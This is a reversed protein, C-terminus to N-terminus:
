LLKRRALELKWLGDEYESALKSKRFKKRIWKKIKRIANKM